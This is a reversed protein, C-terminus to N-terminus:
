VDVFAAEYFNNTSGSQQLMLEVYELCTVELKCSYLRLSEFVTSPALNNDLLYNLNLYEWDKNELAWVSHTRNPVIVTAPVLDTKILQSTTAQNKLKAVSALQASSNQRYPPLSILDPSPM